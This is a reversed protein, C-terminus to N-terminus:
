AEQSVAVVDWRADTSNYICGLYLTKNIVTTTPLTVGLARFIANYTIARATGNDKIRIVLKRGQAPSGTPAAINLATAQATIIATDTTLIDVTLTATSAVSSVRPNIIIDDEYTPQTNVGNSRLIQGDTGENTPSNTKSYAM